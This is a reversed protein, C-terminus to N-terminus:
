NLLYLNILDLTQHPVSYKCEKFYLISIVLHPSLLKVPFLKIAVVKIFNGFHIDDIIPCVSIM